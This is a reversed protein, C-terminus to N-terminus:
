RGAGPEKASAVRKALEREAERSTERTCKQLTHMEEPFENVLDMCAEGSATFLRKKAEQTGESTSLDLDALSVNLTVKATTIPIGAKDYGIKETTIGRHATVQVEQTSNQAIAATCLLGSVAAYIGAHILRAKM